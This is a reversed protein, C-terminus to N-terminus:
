KIISQFFNNILSLGWAAFGAIFLLGFSSAFGFEIQQFDMTLGGIKCFKKFNVM